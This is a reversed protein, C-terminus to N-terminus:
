YPYSRPSHQGALFGLGMLNSGTKLGKPPTKLKNDQQVIINEEPIGSNGMSSLVNDEFIFV